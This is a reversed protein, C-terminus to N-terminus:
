GLQSTCHPCRVANVPIQSICFPCEKTTAVVVEEVKKRKQLLDNMKKIVLFIAFAIIVFNIITNIFMGYNITPAGAAVAEALTAYPVSGLNIFLNSFDVGGMLLGIPPMIIDTVLSSVIAGFAGGLIIGIALDMVNGRMAFDKFEGFFAKM